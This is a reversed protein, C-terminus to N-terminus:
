QVPPDELWGSYDVMVEAGNMIIQQEIEFDTTV